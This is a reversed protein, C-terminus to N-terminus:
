RSFVTPPIINYSVINDCHPWLRKHLQMQTKCKCRVVQFLSHGLQTCTPLHLIPFLSLLVLHIFRTQPNLTCIKDIRVASQNTKQDIISAACGETLVVDSFSHSNIIKKM